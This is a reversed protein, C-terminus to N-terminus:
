KLMKEARARIPASWVGLNGFSDVARIRFSFARKYNRLNLMHTLVKGKQGGLAPQGYFRQWFAPCHCHPDIEARDIQYGVPGSGGLISFTLRLSNGAMDHKLAEIHPPKDADVRPMEKRGCGGLGVSGIFFGTMMLTAFIKRM